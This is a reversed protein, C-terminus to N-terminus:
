VWESSFPLGSTKAVMLVAAVKGRTALASAPHGPNLPLKAVSGRTGSMGSLRQALLKWPRPGNLLLPVAGSVLWSLLQPVDSFRAHSNLSAMVSFDM